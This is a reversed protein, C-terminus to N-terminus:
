DLERAPPAAELEPVRAAELAEGLWDSFEQARRQRSAARFRDRLRLTPAQTLDIHEVLDQTWASVHTDEHMQTAM